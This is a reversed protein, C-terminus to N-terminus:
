GTATFAGVTETLQAAPVDVPTCSPTAFGVVPTFCVEIEGPAFWGLSGFRNAPVGDLWVNTPLGAPDAAVALLGLPEFTGAVVTTQGDLVEIVQCPPTAYGVVESFCVEHQGVTGPTWDLGWGGGAAGDVTITTPLPPDSTVRLLGHPGLSPAPSGGSGGAAYTGTVTTPAGGAVAVTECPPATYDPVAGFCVEVLGPDWYSLLGYRNRPTGDVFVVAPLGAPEVQVSLLGLPEFILDV